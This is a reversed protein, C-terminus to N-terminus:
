GIRGPPRLEQGNRPSPKTEGAAPAKVPVCRIAADRWRQAPNLRAAVCTEGGKLVATTHPQAAPAGSLAAAILLSALM